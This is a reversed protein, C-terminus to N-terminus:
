IGRMKVVIAELEESVVKAAEYDSAKLLGEIRAELQKKQQEMELYDKNFHNEYIMKRFSRIRMKRVSKEEVLLVYDVCNAISYFDHSVMLVAGKYEALAKELALQSYTDLHSTPEDLLLLNATGCAIKALQLLNKEGGSLIDVKRNLQDEEFCYDALYSEVQAKTDFGLEDMEKYITNEENLTEGHIQSLFGIEAEESVHIAPHNNAFIERLLTTKGTGNPGVIAIKEGEHLEFSVAELLLEDFSLSYNDVSLLVKRDAAVMETSEVSASEVEPEMEDGIEIPVEPLKIKPQRINVFPEKIRRAELRALQTAKAKLSRGKQASDIMTAEKRLRDVMKRTREIEELDKAALEQLEIKKVLLALNYDMYNGDFEQIDANELHLIKNFCHNLLYRNHTVVLLTGRHANILDRLGNLNHFDLFVDPEDMILLSPQLIMQKIIQVLKFEGGSLKAIELNELKELGAIKLQKRINSEYHDGDMAAFEDLVKQYEEYIAELDEATAMEECLRANEEQNRVFEESLFDFVTIEQDKNSKSVQSVYGVRLNEEKKIKGDYIYEDTNMLMDILTTKGTGNSGIFACHQGDELTFSIDKYLDKDTFSFTLNEVTIM